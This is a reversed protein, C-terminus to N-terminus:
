KKETDKKETEKKTEEKDSSKKSDMKCCDGKKEGNGAKMDCCDDKKSQHKHTATKTAKTAKKETVAFSTSTTLVFFTLALVAITKRM